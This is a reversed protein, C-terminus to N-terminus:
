NVPDDSSTFNFTFLSPLSLPTYISKNEDLSNSPEKATGGYSQKSKSHSPINSQMPMVFDCGDQSTAGQNGNDRYHNPEPLPILRHLVM